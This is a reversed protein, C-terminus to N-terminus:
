VHDRRVWAVKHGLVDGLRALTTATPNGVGREIRSIDAQALGSREALETQTLGADSRLAALGSGLDLDEVDRFHTSFIDFAAAEDATREAARKDLHEDFSRTAM